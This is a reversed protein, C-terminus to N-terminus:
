GIQTIGKCHLCVYCHKPCRPHENDKYYVTSFHNNKCKCWIRERDKKVLKEKVYHHASMERFGKGHCTSCEIKIKKDNIIFAQVGGKCSRCELRQSEIKDINQLFERCEEATWHLYKCLSGERCMRMAEKETRNVKSFWSCVGEIM